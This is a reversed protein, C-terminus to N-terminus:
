QGRHLFKSKLSTIMTLGAVLAKSPGKSASVEATVTAMDPPTSEDTVSRISESITLRVRGTKLSIEARVLVALLCRLLKCACSPDGARRIMRRLYLSARLGIGRRGKRDMM